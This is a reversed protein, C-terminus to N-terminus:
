LKQLRVFVSYLVHTKINIKRDILRKSCPTHTHLATFNGANTRKM